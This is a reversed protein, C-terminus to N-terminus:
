SEDHLRVKELTKEKDDTIALSAYVMGRAMDEVAEQSLEMDKEKKLVSQLTVEETTADTTITNNDTTADVAVSKTGDEAPQPAYSDVSEAMDAEAKAPAVFIPESEIGAM